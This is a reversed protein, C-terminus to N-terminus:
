VVSEAQTGDFFHVLSTELSYEAGVVALQQSRVLRALVDSGSVLRNVSALVNARMGRAILTERDPRSTAALFGEVSPRVLDIISRLGPPMMAGPREIEDLAAAIAGCRSHGLVVVLRTGFREVALEISGMQTPAVVNGAVRVVFLDGPGQDFVMEIPVRSDSCGLVIAWPHQGAALQDRMEFNRQSAGGATGAAFRRNGEVLRALAEESSIM